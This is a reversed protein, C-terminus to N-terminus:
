TVDYSKFENGYPGPFSLPDHLNRDNLLVNVIHHLFICNPVALATWLYIIIFFYLCLLISCLTHIVILLVTIAKFTVLLIYRGSDDDLQM